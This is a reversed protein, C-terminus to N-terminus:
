WQAAQDHCRVSRPSQVVCINKLGDCSVGPAVPSLTALLIPVFVLERELFAKSEERDVSVSVADLEPNDGLGVARCRRHEQGLVVLFPVPRTVPGAWRVSDVFSMIGALSVNGGSTAFAM